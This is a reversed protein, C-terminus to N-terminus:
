NTAVVTVNNYLPGYLQTQVKVLAKEVESPKLGAEKMTLKRHNRFFEFAIQAGTGGDTNYAPWNHGLKYSCRVVDVGNPCNGFSVCYLQTEGDNPTPFRKITNVGSCGNATAWVKMINDVPEYNWGSNSVTSNAPCVRDTTGHLDMVSVLGGRSTPPPNNHGVAAQGGGPVIAAFRSTLAMGAEYAM